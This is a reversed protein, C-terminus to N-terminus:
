INLSFLENFLNDSLFPEQSIKIKKIFNNIIKISQLDDKLNINVSNNLSFNYKECLQNITVAMMKNKLEINTNNCMMNLFCSIFQVFRYNLLTYEKKNKEFFNIEKQLFDKAFLQWLDPIYFEKTIKTEYNKFIEIFDYILIFDDKFEIFSENKLM